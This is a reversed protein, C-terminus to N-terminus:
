ATAGEGQRLFRGTDIYHQRSASSATDYGDEASLRDREVAVAATIWALQRWREARQHAGAHEYYGAMNTAEGIQLVVLMADREPLHALHDRATEGVAEVSFICRYTAAARILAEVLVPHETTVTLM